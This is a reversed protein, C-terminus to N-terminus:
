EKIWKVWKTKGGKYGYEAQAVQRGHKPCDYKITVLWVDKMSTRSSSISKIDGWLSKESAFSCALMYTSDNPNKGGLNELYCAQCRYSGKLAQYIDSELDANGCGSILGLSLVSFIIVINTFHHKMYCDCEM